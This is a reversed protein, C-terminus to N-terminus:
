LLDLKPHCSTRSSLPLGRMIDELLSGKGRVRIPRGNANDNSGKTETSKQMSPAALDKRGELGVRDGPRCVQRHFVAM